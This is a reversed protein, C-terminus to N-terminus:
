SRSLAQRSRQERRYRLAPFPSRGQAPIWKTPLPRFQSLLATSSKTLVALAKGIVDNESRVTVETSLDGDAIAQMEHAQKATSISIKNFSDALVGVEDKRYKLLKDKEDTVKAMDIDGVALLEGFAAFKQMPKSIMNSIGLGMLISLAIGAVLMVVMVIASTRAEATNKDCKVKAAPVDVSMLQEFEGELTDGLKATEASVTGTEAAHQIGTKYEAWEAETNKYQDTISSTLYIGEYKKLLDDVNACLNNIKATYSSKEAATEVSTLRLSIYRVNNFDAYASGIYNLALTNGQYLSAANENIHRISIIGTVGVALAIVVTVLYGFIIKKSIKLNQFWTKM